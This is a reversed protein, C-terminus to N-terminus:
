NYKRVLSPCSLLSTAVCECLKWPKGEDSRKIGEGAGRESGDADDFCYTRPITCSHVLMKYYYKFICKSTLLM